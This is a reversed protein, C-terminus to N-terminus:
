RKEDDASKGLPMEVASAELDDAAARYELAAAEADEAGEPGSVIGEERCAAAYAELGVARARWSAALLFVRRREDDM